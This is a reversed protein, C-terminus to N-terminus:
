YQANSNMELNRIFDTTQSPDRMGTSHCWGQKHGMNTAGSLQGKEKEVAGDDPDGLLVDSALHCYDYSLSYDTFSTTYFSMKNRAWTPINNLWASAGDTTLDNVYGCGQGFVTGLAALNGLPSGNYPSGISQM